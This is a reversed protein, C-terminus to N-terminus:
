FPTKNPYLRSGLLHLAPELLTEGEKKIRMKIKELRLGTLCGILSEKISLGLELIGCGICLLKEVRDIRIRGIWEILMGLNVLSILDLGLNKGKRLKNRM